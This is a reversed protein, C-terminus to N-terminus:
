RLVKYFGAGFVLAAGAWAAMGLDHNFALASIVISIVQRTTMILTFPVPGFTKITYFIFLQGTASTLAILVNDQLAERHEVLFALSISLEGSIVLSGMTFLISWLNTAFM